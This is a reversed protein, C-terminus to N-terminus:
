RVHQDHSSDHQDHSSGHQDHSSGHQDHVGHQDHSSSVWSLFHKVMAYSAKAVLRVPVKLSQCLKFLQTSCTWMGLSIDCLWLMYFTFLALERRLPLGIYCSAQKSVPTWTPSLVRGSIFFSSSILSSHINITNSPYVCAYDWVCAKWKPNTECGQLFDAKKAKTPNQPVACDLTVLVYLLSM